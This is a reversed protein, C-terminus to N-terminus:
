LGIFDLVKLFESHVDVRPNWGGLLQKIAESVEGRTIPSDDRENGSAAEEASSTDTPNLLDVGVIWCRLLTSGRGWTGLDSLKGSDSQPMSFIMKWPRM